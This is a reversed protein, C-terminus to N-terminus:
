KVTFLEDNALKSLITHKRFKANEFEIWLYFWRFFVVETVFDYKWYRSRGEHM